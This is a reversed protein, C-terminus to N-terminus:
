RGGVETKVPAQSQGIPRTLTGSTPEAAAANPTSKLTQKIKDIKKAEGTFRRELFEMERQAEDSGPLMARLGTPAHAKAEGRANDAAIRLADSTETVLQRLEKTSGLIQSAEEVASKFDRAGNDFSVRAINNAVVKETGTTELMVNASSVVTDSLERLNNMVKKILEAREQPTQRTTPEAM